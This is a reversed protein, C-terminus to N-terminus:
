RSPARDLRHRARARPLAARVAGVARDRDPLRPLAGLGHPLRRLRQLRRPRVDGRRGDRPDVGHGGCVLARRDPLAARRRRARAAHLRARAARHRRARLLAVLRDRRLRRLRARARRARTPAAPAQAGDVAKRLLYLRATGLAVFLAGVVFGVTGGGSARHAVLIAFGLVVARARLRRRLPPLPRERPRRGPPSWSAARRTSSCSTSRTASSRAGARGRAPRPAPRGHRHDGRQPAGGRRRDRPGANRARVIRAIVNVGYSEGIARAEDLQENAEQVEDPLYADLPLELPVEIVTM